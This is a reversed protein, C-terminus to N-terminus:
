SSRSSSRFTSRSSARYNAMELLASALRRQALPPSNRLFLFCGGDFGRLGDVRPPQPELTHASRCPEVAQLADARLGQYVDELHWLALTSRTSIPVKRGQHSFKAPSWNADTIEVAAPELLLNAPVTSFRSTRM